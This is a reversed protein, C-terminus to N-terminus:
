LNDLCTRIFYVLNARGGESMFVGNGEEDSSIANDIAWEDVMDAIRNAAAKEFDDM